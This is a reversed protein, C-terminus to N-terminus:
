SRDPPSGVDREPDLETRGRAARRRRLTRPSLPGDDNALVVAIWPLPITVLLLVLGIEWAVEYLAGGVGFGVIHIIMIVVYTRKRRRLREEPSPEADTILPPDGRRARASLHPDAGPRAPTRASPAPARSRAPVRPM